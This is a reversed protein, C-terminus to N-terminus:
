RKQLIGMVANRTYAIDVYSGRSVGKIQLVEFKVSVLKSFSEITYERYHGAFSDTHPLLPESNGSFPKSIRIPVEIFLIGDVKLVRYIEDLFAEDDEVHEMTHLSIAFDVSQSLFPLASEPRGLVYEINSYENGYTSRAVNLFNSDVDFALVKDCYQAMVASGNGQGCSIDLVVSTKSLYQKAAEYGYYYFISGYNWSVPVNEILEDRLKYFEENSYEPVDMFIKVNFRSDTELMNWPRFSYRNSLLKDNNLLESIKKLGSYTHLDCGFKIDFNSPVMYYDYTSNDKAYEVMNEVLNLDVYNWNILLRALLNAGYNECLRLMRDVVDLSSGYFVDIDYIDSYKDFVERNEPIDAVGLVISDFIQSKQLKKIPNRYIEELFYEDTYHCQIFCVTGM